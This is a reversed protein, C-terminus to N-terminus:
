KVLRALRLFQSDIKLNARGAADPNVGFRIKGNEMTLGIVGGSRAFGDIDSVTLVSTGALSRLVPGLRERESRSVFLMHCRTAADGLNVIRVVVSRNRVTEGKVTETLVPGFPSDGLIGIVLPADAAGFSTAPWTVFRATNLLCVAKVKYELPPDAGAVRGSLALLAIFQIVKQITM